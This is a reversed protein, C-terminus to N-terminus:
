AKKVSRNVRVRVRFRSSFFVDYATSLFFVDYGMAFALHKPSKGLYSLISM